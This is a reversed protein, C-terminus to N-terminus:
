LGGDLRIKSPCLFPWQRPSIASFLEQVHGFVKLQGANEYAWNSVDFGSPPRAFWFGMDDLCREFGIRFWYVPTGTQLEFRARLKTASTESTFRVGRSNTAQYKPDEM